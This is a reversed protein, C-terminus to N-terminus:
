RDIWLLGNTGCNNVGAQVTAANAVSPGAKEYLVKTDNRIHIHDAIDGTFHATRHEEGLAIPTPADGTVSGGTYSSFNCGGFSIEIYISGGSENLIIGVGSVVLLSGSGGSECILVGSTASCDVSGGSQCVLTGCNAGALSISGGSECVMLGANASDGEGLAISGGPKCILTGRNGYGDQDCAFVVSGGSDCVITGSNYCADNFHVRGYRGVRIGSQVNTPATMTIQGADVVGDVVTYISHIVGVYGSADATVAYGNTHLTDGSEPTVWVLAPDAILTLHPVGSCNEMPTYDGAPGGALCLWMVYHIPAGGEGFPMTTIIYSSGLTWYFQRYTVGGIVAIYAPRGNVTGYHEWTGGTVDPSPAPDGATIAIGGPSARDAWITDPSHGGPAHNDANSYQAYCTKSV